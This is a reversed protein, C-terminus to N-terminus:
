PTTLPLAITVQDMQEHVAEPADYEGATFQYVLSARLSQARERRLDGFEVITSSNPQLTKDTWGGDPGMRDRAHEWGFRTLTRWVTREADNVGEVLLWVARGSTGGPLAHGASHSIRVVAVDGQSGATVSLRLRAVGTLFKARSPGVIDHVDGSGQGKIHCDLCESGDKFAQSQFFSRVTLEGPADHCRACVGPTDLKAFPHGGEGHCDRCQVGAGGSPAHCGLCAQGEGERKWESLFSLTSAARSMASRGFATAAEDHCGECSSPIDGGAEAGKWILCSFAVVVWLRWMM